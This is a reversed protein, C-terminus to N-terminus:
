SFAWGPPESITRRSRVVSSAGAAGWLEDETGPLESGAEPQFARQSPNPMQILIGRFITVESPTACVCGTWECRSAGTAPRLRAAYLIPNSSREVEAKLPALRAEFEKPPLAMLPALRAELSQLEQILRVLGQSTGGAAQSVHAWGEGPQWRQGDSREATAVEPRFWERLAAMVAADNNPNAPQLEQIKRLWLDTRLPRQTAM